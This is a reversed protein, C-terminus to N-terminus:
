GFKQSWILNLSHQFGAVTSGGGTTAVIGDKEQKGTEAETGTFHNTEAELVNVPSTTFDENPALPQKVVAHRQRSIHSLGQRGVQV